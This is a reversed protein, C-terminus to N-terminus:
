PDGASAFAPSLRITPRETRKTRPRFSPIAVRGGVSSGPWRHTNPFFVAEVLRFSARSALQTIGGPAVPSHGALQMSVCQSLKRDRLPWM